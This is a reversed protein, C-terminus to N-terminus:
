KVPKVFIMRGAAVQILRAVETEVEQGVLDAGDEVVIMTGDPLYGVGQRADKGLHIVKIKLKEGPIAITRVANALENINLVPINSVTALRNLNFDTTIIKGQLNKALKLLKEDVNKGAGDKDWIEIRLGKTKKLENIVEFGRRGRSRKIYDASDSVQQLETLVFTPVLITGSLFNTKAIDLIRGDIIASTDLILPHNVAIGGIPASAGFGAGAGGPARQQIRLMQSTIEASLRSVFSNVFRITATSVIKALDPFLGYGMLGFWVTIAIRLFIRNFPPIDPVVETFIFAILAFIVALVLRLIKTVNRGGGPRSFAESIRM